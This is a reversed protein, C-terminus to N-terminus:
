SANSLNDQLVTQAYSMLEIDTPKGSSSSSSSSGFLKGLGNWIFLVIAGLIIITILISVGDVKKNEM